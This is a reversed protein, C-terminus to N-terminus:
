RNIGLFLKIQKLNPVRPNQLYLEIMRKRQWLKYYRRYSKETKPIWSPIKTKQLCVTKGDFFTTRYTLAAVDSLDVILAEKNARNQKKSAKKQFKEGDYYAPVDFDPFIFNGLGYFIHKGKYVETSQIVHAHHGIILDAGADIFKRARTVDSPKPYRIEEDGWHLNLIVMDSSARCAQIDEIAKEDDLLASGNVQDSGFVSHTSPCSYGLLAIKKKDKKIICPNNFNNQTNGAGFFAIDHKQLFALTESFSKEGYDMIHNNALNVALPFKKFTEFIHSQEVGLNIKNKAPIGSTSLPFELNFIYDDLDVDIAYANDLFVDGLFNISM